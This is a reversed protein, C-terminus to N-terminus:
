IPEQGFRNHLQEHMSVPRVFLGDATQQLLGQACLRRAPGLIIGVRIIRVHNHPQQEIRVSLTLYFGPGLPQSVGQLWDLRSVSLSCTRLFSMM